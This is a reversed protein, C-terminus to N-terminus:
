KGDKQASRAARGTIVADSGFKARAADSAREAKARKEVLPDLLDISDARYDELESIGIGILRYRRRGDAEKELM